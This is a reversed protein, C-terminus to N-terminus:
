IPSITISVTGTYDGATLVDASGLTHFNSLDIQVNHEGTALRASLHGGNIPTGNTTVGFTQTGGSVLSFKTDATFHVANAYGGTAVGTPNVMPEATIEVRPLATTCVVRFGLNDLNSSASITGISRLTGDTDDLEGLDITGGFDINPTAGGDTVICKDGVTGELTVTGSVSQAAAPQVAAVLALVAVTGAIVKM